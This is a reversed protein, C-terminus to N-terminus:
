MSHMRRVNCSDTHSDLAIAAVWPKDNSESWLKRVSSIYDNGGPFEFYGTGVTVSNGQYNNHQYLRWSGGTVAVSSTIDNFNPLSSVSVYLVLQRGEYSGHEYLVIAVTGSPPVPRISSLVDIGQGWDSVWGYNGPSLIASDKRYSCDTYFIWDCTGLIKASSVVDNFGIDKLCSIRGQLTKKTGGFGGHQYLEARCRCIIWICTCLDNLEGAAICISSHSFM